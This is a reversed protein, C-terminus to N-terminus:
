KRATDLAPCPPDAPPAKQFHLPSCGRTACMPDFRLFSQLSNRSDRAQDAFRRQWTCQCASRLKKTPNTGLAMPLSYLCCSSDPVHIMPALSKISRGPSKRARPLYNQIMVIGERINGLIRTYNRLIVVFKGSQVSADNGHQGCSVLLKKRIAFYTRTYM